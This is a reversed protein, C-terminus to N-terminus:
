CPEAANIALLHRINANPGASSAQMARRLAIRGSNRARLTHTHTTNKMEACVCGCGGGWARLNQKWGEAGREDDDDDDCVFV